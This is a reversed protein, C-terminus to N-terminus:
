TCYTRPTCYRITKVANQNVGGDINSVNVTMRCSGGAVIDMGTVWFKLLELDLVQQLSTPSRLDM